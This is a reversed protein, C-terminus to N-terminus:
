IVIHIGFNKFNPEPDFCDGLSLIKLVKSCFFLPHTNRPLLLVFRLKSSLFQLNKTFKKNHFKNETKVLKTKEM